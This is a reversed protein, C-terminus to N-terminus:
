SKEHDKCFCIADNLEYTFYVFLSKFTVRNCRNIRVFDVKTLRPTEKVMIADRVVKPFFPFYSNVM